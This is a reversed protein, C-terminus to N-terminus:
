GPPYDRNRGHGTDCSIGATLVWQLASEVSMELPQVRDKPIILAYGGLQYSMQLYVVVVDEDPSQGQLDSIDQQMLFGVAKMELHPIDVLVPRGLKRKIGGDFLDMVDHITSYVTGVVPLRRFLAEMAQIVRRTAWPYMLLGVLFVVVVVAATGLGPFYYDRPLFVEFVCKVMAELGAVLWYLIYVILVIPIVVDLGKLFPRMMHTSM